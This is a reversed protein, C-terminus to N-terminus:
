SSKRKKASSSGASKRFSGSRSAFAHTDIASKGLFRRVVVSSRRWISAHGVARDVTEATSGDGTYIACHGPFVLVDGYALEDRVRAGQSCTRLYDSGHDLRVGVSQFTRMVFGSCDVGSRSEGGWLYPTGQWADIEQTLRQTSETSARDQDEGLRARIFGAYGIDADPKSLDLRKIGQNSGIWLCDGEAAIVRPALGAINWPLFADQKGANLDAHFLTSGRVCWLHAGSLSLQSTSRGTQDSRPFEVRQIAQENEKLSLGAIGTGLLLGVREPSAVVQRMGELGSASPLEVQKWSKGDSRWALIEGAGVAPGRLSASWGPRGLAVLLASNGGGTFTVDAGRLSQGGDLGVVEDLERIAGTELDLQCGGQPGTLIAKGQWLALRRVRSTTSALDFARVKKEKERYVFLWRAASSSASQSSTLLEAEGCLWAALSGDRAGSMVDGAPLPPRVSWGNKSAPDYVTLSGDRRGILLKGAEVQLSSPSFELANPAPTVEADRETANATTPDQASQLGEPAQLKTQEKPADQSSNHRATAVREERKNEDRPRDPPRAPRSEEKTVAPARDVRNSTFVRVEDVTGAENTRTNVLVLRIVHKGDPANTSDWVYSWPLADTTQPPEGDVQIGVKIGKPRLIPDSGVKVTIAGSLTTDDKIRNLFQLRPAQAPAAVAASLAAMAWVFLLSFRM